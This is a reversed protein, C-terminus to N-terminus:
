RIIAGGSGGGAGNQGTTGTSGGGIIAGGSGGGAGSQTISGGLAFGTIAVQKLHHGALKATLM